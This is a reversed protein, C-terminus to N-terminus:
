MKSNQAMYKGFARFFFTNVSKRTCSEDTTNTVQSYHFCCVVFYEPCSSSLFQFWCVSSEGGARASFVLFVCVCACMGLLEVCSIWFKCTTYHVCSLREVQKVEDFIVRLGHTVCVATFSHLLYYKQSVYVYCWGLSNFFIVAEIGQWNILLIYRRWPPWSMYSSFFFSLGVHSFGRPDSLRQASVASPLAFVSQETVMQQTFQLENTFEPFKSIDIGIQLSISENFLKLYHEETQYICHNQHNVNLCSM